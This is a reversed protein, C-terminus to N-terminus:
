KYWTQLNRTNVFTFFFFLSFFCMLLEQGRKIKCKQCMQAYKSRKKKKQTHAKTHVLLREQRM